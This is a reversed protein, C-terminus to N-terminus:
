PKRKVVEAPTILIGKGVDELIVIDGIKLNYKKALEERIGIRRGGMIM